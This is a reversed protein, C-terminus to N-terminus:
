SEVGSCAALKALSRTIVDRVTRMSTGRREAIEKTTFGQAVLHMVASQTGSLVPKPQQAPRDHRHEATVEGRLAAELAELLIEKDTLQDKRLYAAGQPVPVRSRTHFRANPINTFFLIALAPNHQRFADALDFGNVGHGLDVDLIVGDPDHTKFNNAAELVDSALLIRYGASTVIGALLSRTM